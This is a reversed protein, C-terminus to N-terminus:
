LGKRCINRLKSLTKKTFQLVSLGSLWTIWFFVPGIHSPVRRQATVQTLAINNNCSLSIIQHLPTKVLYWLIWSGNKVMRSSHSIAAPLWRGEKGSLGMEQLLLNNGHGEKWRESIQPHLIKLKHFLAPTYQSCHLKEMFWQFLDTVTVKCM